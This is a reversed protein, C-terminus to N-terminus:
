AASNGQYANRTLQDVKKSAVCISIMARAATNAAFSAGRLQRQTTAAALALVATKVM